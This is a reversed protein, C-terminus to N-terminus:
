NYYKEKIEKYYGSKKAYKWWANSGRVTKNKWPKSTCHLVSPNNSASNFEALTYKNQATLNDIYNKGNNLLFNFIGFKAPLVGVKDYCM